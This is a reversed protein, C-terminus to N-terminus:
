MFSDAWLNDSWDFMDRYNEASWGDSAGIHVLGMKGSETNYAFNATLWSAETRSIPSYCASNTTINKARFESLPNGSYMSCVIADACVKAQANAMHASKPQSTGQSDGIIYINSMGVVTSEYTLPNVPAWRSGEPVLGASQLLQPARQEAIINYVAAVPDSEGGTYLLRGDAVEFLEVKTRYTVIDGYLETFAKHFTEEEAQIKENADLVIVKGGGKEKLIDAVLCAREYPGPPCRYPSRPITMVFTQDSTMAQVMDRLKETQAGAIWAHPMAESDWGKPGIFEIGPSLVLRNCTIPEGSALELLITGDDLRRLNTASDQVINVGYKSSLYSHSLSLEGLGLEENLVLNSLVCSYHADSPDVLTVDIEYNSWMRLYKALTSGGFGGGVVAVHGVVGGTAAGLLGPASIALGATGATKLFSRRSGFM